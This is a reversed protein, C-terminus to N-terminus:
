PRVSSRANLIAAILDEPVDQPVGASGDHFAARVVAITDRYQALYRVCNVCVAVHQDFSALVDGPLEGSLYDDLFDAFARCTM